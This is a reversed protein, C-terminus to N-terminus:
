DALWKGMKQAAAKQGAYRNEFKLTKGFWRAKLRRVEKDKDAVYCGLDYLKQLGDSAIVSVGQIDAEKILREWNVDEPVEAGSFDPVLAARLLTLLVERENMM